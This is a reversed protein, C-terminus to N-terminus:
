YHAVPDSDKIVLLYLVTNLYAHTNKTHLTGKDKYVPLGNITLSTSFEGRIPAPKNNSTGSHRVIFVRM